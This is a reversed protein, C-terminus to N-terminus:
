NAREYRNHLGRHTSVTNPANNVFRIERRYYGNDIISPQDMACILQMGLENSWSLLDKVLYALLDARQYYYKTDALNGDSDLMKINTAIESQMDNENVFIMVIVYQNKFAKNDYNLREDYIDFCIYNLVEDQVGNLKLYDLIQPRKIKENYDLIKNRIKLEDETPNDPDVFRNLPKPEKKGLVDKIDPDTLFLQMLKSKKYAIDINKENELNRSSIGVTRELM